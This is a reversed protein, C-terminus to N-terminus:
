ASNACGPARLKAVIMAKDLEAVAGLAQRIFNATPTDDVFANPADVAIM